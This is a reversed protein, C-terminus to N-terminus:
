LPSNGANIKAWILKALNQITSFDTTTIEISYIQVGFEKELKPIVSYIQLSNIQGVIPLFPDFGDIQNLLFVTLHAQIEPETMSVSM